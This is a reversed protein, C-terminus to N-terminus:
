VTTHLSQYQNQKPTSIYDKFRGPILRFVDHIIGLVNYCENVTDVIVRVAYIDYIEDFSRGQMYMKRYIGHISKVRGEIHVRKGLTEDLKESIRSQIVNLFERRDKERLSLATIIEAYGIPDLQRICLDELEEKVGRIGLRHAIPAYVEITELSIDRRKQERLSDITRMNHLRDALKVIIVRVDEAMAFLMKRLNESQQEERSYYPIKGLKTVGDVLNAIEKSFMKAVTETTADTDEVVDHLLASVICATDMGLETLIIAVNIPHEIYPEGSRRFQGEHCETAYDLAKRILDKDYAPNNEVAAILENKKSVFQIM